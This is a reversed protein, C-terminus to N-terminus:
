RHRANYTSGGGAHADGEPGATPRARATTPAEAPVLGIRTPRRGSARITTTIARARSTAPVAQRATSRAITAARQLQRDLRQVPQGRQHRRVHRHANNTAAAPIHHRRRRRGCVLFADRFVDRQGLSRLCQRERHRLVSLRGLVGPPLLRWLLGRLVAAYWAATALGMAFGFTFGVYPNYIPAAAVTYTGPRSVLGIGIWPSYAYGTGYVITGSPEVVM